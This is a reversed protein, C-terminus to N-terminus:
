EQVMREYTKRTKMDDEMRKRQDLCFLVYKEVETLTDQDLTDSSVLVGNQTRTVQPSIKKIINYIQKHENVELRDIKDKLAELMSHSFRSTM